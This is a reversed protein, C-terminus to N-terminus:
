SNLSKLIKSLYKKDRGKLEPFLKSAQTWFHKDGRGMKKGRRTHKDLAYDPIEKREPFMLLCNKIEDIFRDKTSRSLYAAAFLAQILSDDQHEVDTYFANKLSNIVVTALPNGFGVDEVAITVMREWFKKQFKKGSICLEYAWYVANATNGRRIDKQIASIVEDTPYGNKTVIEKWNDKSV